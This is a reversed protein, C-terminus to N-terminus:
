PTRGMPHEPRCSSGPFNLCSSQSSRNLPRHASCPILAGSKVFSGRPRRWSPHSRLGPCPPPPSVSPTSARRGTMSALPHLYPLLLLCGKFPISSDVGREPEPIRRRRVTFPLAPAEHRGDLGDREGLGTDPVPRPRPRVQRSAWRGTLLSEGGTVGRTWAAVISRFPM